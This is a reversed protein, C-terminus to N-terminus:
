SVSKLVLMINNFNKMKKMRHFLIDLYFFKLFVDRYSNMKQLQLGYRIIHTFEKMFGLINDIYNINFM